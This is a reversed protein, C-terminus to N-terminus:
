LMGRSCRDRFQFLEEKLPGPISDDGSVRELAQTRNLGAGYLHRHIRRVAAVEEESFGHRQLGVKNYSRVRARNGEALMYPPLDQVLASGGGLLAYKGVKCFQHIASAGGINAHSDIEVHGGLVAQTSIIIDDHLLCEHAVHAYSLLYNGDGIRTEGNASTPCHVTVFERFINGDGIRLVGDTGDYKLDQTRGGIAAFPFIENNKGLVSNGEVVGHHHLTCGSDLCVSPGVYAYAGITVDDALKAGPEVIATPHIRAMIKVNEGLADV